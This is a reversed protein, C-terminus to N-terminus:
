PRFAAKNAVRAKQSAERVDAIEKKRQDLERQPAELMELRLAQKIAARARANLTKSIVLLQFPASYVGRTLIVLSETDEWRAVVMMDAPVDAPLPGRGTRTLSSMGYTASLSRIVDDNTLGEMRDRDYSDVVQYLQDDCFNFLILIWAKTQKNITAPRPPPTQAAKCV